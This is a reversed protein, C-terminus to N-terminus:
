ATPGPKRHRGARAKRLPLPVGRIVGGGEVGHVLRQAAAYNDAVSEAIWQYGDWRLIARPLDQYLHAPAHEHGIIVAKLQGIPRLRKQRREAWDALSEEDVRAEKSRPVWAVPEQRGVRRLPRCTSGM